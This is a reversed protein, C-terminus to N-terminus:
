YKLDISFDNLFYKTLLTQNITAERINELGCSYLAIITAYEFQSCEGLAQSYYFDFIGLQDAAYKMLTLDTQHFLDALERYHKQHYHTRCFRNLTVSFTQSEFIIDPKVKQQYELLQRFGIISQYPADTNLYESFLNNLITLEMWSLRYETIRCGDFDPLTCALADSFLAIKEASSDSHQARMYLYFQRYLINDKQAIFRELELLFQPSNSDSLYRAGILRFKLEHFEAEETNGWFTFERESIGLRQMLTEALLVDPWLAGSEIKSLKSRSCLGQCLMQQSIGQRIRLERIIRGITLVDAGYFDYIGDSFAATDTIKKAPFRQLPIDPFALLNEPLTLNLYERIYNRCITAFASGVAHSSYFTSKFYGVAEESRGLHWCCLGTLFNLEFLPGNTGNLVMQHRNIDALQFATEYDKVALLYQTHVIACEALLQEKESFTIQSNTLYAYLQVCISQCIDMADLLLAEQAIAALLEIEPISLLLGSFDTLEIKPRSIHLADLFLDYLQRHDALGSRFQLMGHLLLWEQYNFKNHNWERKELEELEQFAASLQWADLHFRAHKLHFFCEYDNLNEFIPFIECPAGAHAMLAQFTAPSVGASGNEIRSLSMLSCIGESLKEQTLGAKKRAERITNGANRVSM